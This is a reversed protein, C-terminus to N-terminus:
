GGTTILVEVDSGIFESVVKSIQISDDGVVISKETMIGLMELKLSLYSANTNVVRGSLVEDGVALIWAKM